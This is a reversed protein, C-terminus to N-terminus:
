EGKRYRYARMIMVAAQARTANEKPRFENNDFGNIIGLKEMECVAGAAYESIDDRDSFNLQVKESEAGIIRAIVAAIQERTINEGIGFKDDSIGNIIGSGVGINIYEGYWETPNVDVFGSQTNDSKIAFAEIVMKVFEERKVFSDPAFIRDKKGTVAGLKHLSIIDDKAWQVDDLDDFIETEEAKQPLKVNPFSSVSVSSGTSGGGGSGGSTGSGGSVAADSVAKNFAEELKQISAFKIGTIKAMANDKKNGLKDYAAFNINIYKAFASNKLIEESAGPSVSCAIGSLIAARNFEDEFTTKDTVSKGKLFAAFSKENAKFLAYGAFEKIGNDEGYASMLTELYEDSPAQIIAEYFSKQILDATLESATEYGKGMVAGCVASKDALEFYPKYTFGLISANDAIFREVAGVDTEANIREMVSKVEELKACYFPESIESESSKGKVRAAYWGSKANLSFTFKYEKDVTSKQSSIYPFNKLLVESEDVGYDADVMFGDDNLTVPVVEIFVEEMAKSVTGSATIIGTDTNQSISIQAYAISPFIVAFLMVSLIIINRKM